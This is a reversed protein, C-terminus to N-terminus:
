KSPSIKAKSMETMIMKMKAIIDQNESLLMYFFSNAASSFM